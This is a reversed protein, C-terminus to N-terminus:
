VAARPHERKARELQNRRLPQQKFSSLRESEAASREIDQDCQDFAMFRQRLGADELAANYAAEYGGASTGRRHYPFLVDGEATSVNSDFSRYQKKTTILRSKGRKM